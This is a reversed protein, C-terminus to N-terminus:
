VKRRMLLVVAVILVLIVIVAAIIIMMSDDSDGSPSSGEAWVATATTDSTISVTSGASYQQGNISWHDFHKGSPATFGCSQLKVKGDEEVSPLMTGSGGGAQYTLYNREGVVLECSAVPSNDSELTILLDYTGEQLPSVYQGIKTAAAMPGISQSTPGVLTMRVDGQPRESLTIMVICADTVTYEADIGDGHGTGGLRSAADSDVAAFPVLVLMAVSLLAIWGRM